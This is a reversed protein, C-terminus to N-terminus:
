MTTTITPPTNPENLILYVQGADSGGEDNRISSILIDPRGDGNVDGGMAIAYGSGDYDVEGDITVDAYSISQNM